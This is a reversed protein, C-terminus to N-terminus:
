GEAIGFAMLMHTIDVNYLSLGIMCCLLSYQSSLILIYIQLHIILNYLKIDFTKTHKKM